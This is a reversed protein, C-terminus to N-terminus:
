APSVPFTGHALPATPNYRVLPAIDLLDVATYCGDLYGRRYQTLPAVGFWHPPSCRLFQAWDRSIAAVEAARKFGDLWDRDAPTM